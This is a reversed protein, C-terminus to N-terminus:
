AQANGHERLRKILREITRRGESLGDVWQAAEERTIGPHIDEIQDLAIRMGSLTVDATSIARRQAALGTIQVRTDRTSLPVPGGGEPPEPRVKRVVNARSLNGEAKAETLATEFREDSVGDTMAYTDAREQPRTFFDGVPRKPYITEDRGDLTHRNDGHRKIEGLEQGKRIALGIGREARRVIEAAALQADHGLQKSMTYVRIAEAQSKLEVIQEIGGHELAHALWTKARECAAIVYVAPDASREIESADVPILALGNGPATM